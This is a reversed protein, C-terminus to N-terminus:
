RTGPSPGPSSARRQQRRPKLGDEDLADLERKSPRRREPGGGSGIAAATRSNDGTIMVVRIGADHAATIARAAEPRPPDTMAALAAFTLGEESMPADAPQERYACALVRLARGALERNKELIGNREVDTLPSVGKPTRVHTCLPLVAEPAGKALLLSGEEGARDVAVSMMRRESTFPVEGTREYAGCRLAPCRDAFELLATETPDGVYGLDPHRQANNCLGAVLAAVEM